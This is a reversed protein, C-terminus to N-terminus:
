SWHGLSLPNELTYCHQCQTTYSSALLNVEPLAWLQFAVQPIHPLLHWELLLWGQSMYDAEVNLHTPIYAPVLTISHKNILSLIWCALRSVFPSVKGGKNCFSAKAISKVLLLAVVKGSLQFAIRHVMM